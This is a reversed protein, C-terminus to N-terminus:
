FSQLIKVTSLNRIKFKLYLGSILSCIVGLIIAFGILWFPYTMVADLFYNALIWACIGAILGSLVGAIVGVFIFEYLWIRNLFKRDAGYTKLIATEQLRKTQMGFVSILLVVLGGMLAFIFLAQVAYFLKMLMQNIQSITQEVNIVSVNPHNKVIVDDVHSNTLQHYAIIWSQPAGKLLETPMIAFFNVRMSNWELKRVSTIKVTYSTGLVDFTLLDGLKLGFSKMIGSEMSVQDSQKLDDLWKGSVITNKIPLKEMYSLNFERDILRKTNEDSFNDASIPTQNIQILRGRVMPYIDWNDSVSEAKLIKEIGEKQEPMINLVFRNPADSAISSQWTSLVDTRLVTLLLLALMAIALSTIQIVSFKSGGVMRQGVFKLGLPLEKMRILWGGILRSWWWSIGAVLITGLLFSALVTMSLYVNKAIGVLLSSYTFLGILVCFVYWSSRVQPLKRLATIPSVYTLQLLPPGSFGILLTMAVLFSLLIPWWSPLLINQTVLTGIWGILLEQFLYGFAMGLITAIFGVLLIPQIHNFFIQRRSAGFCRWVAVSISQRETYRHASIAIGVAAILATFLAALSMMKNAQSITKRAIPQGDELGEVKVGRLEQSAIWQRAWSEFQDVTKQSDSAVLLRYSARSGLGLLQTKELDDKHIMVRPSFNMFAAGRDLENVIIDAVLFTTNGLELKDGVQISLQQSLQEDIWVTNPTLQTKHNKLELAGRLPYNNSVAKLAVLKSVEGVRAMTPFVVTHATRLGMKQATQEFIPSLPQDGRILVDAAILDHANKEFSRELRDMLFTVSSLSAISIWLAVALWALESSFRIHKFFNILRM